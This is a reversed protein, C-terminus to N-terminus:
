VEEVAGNAVNVSFTVIIYNLPYAPLYAFRVEMVTPDVSRQRVALAQYDAIAGNGKSYELLGQVISKVSLATIATIPQGIIDASELGNQLLYVLADRSRAISIERTLTSSVDTTVGHRVVIRRQRDIEVICIGSSSYTNKTSGSLAPGVIGSFSRIVQRTLGQQVPQSSLRGGLAAALYQHGLAVTQNTSSNYYSMGGVSGYAFVIRSSEFAGGALLTPPDTTMDPDFGIIGTRFYGDRSANDAHIKLNLAATDADADMIGDTLPVVINAAYNTAIAAYATTLAALRAASIEEPTDDGVGPPATAVLLIEGAGNEFCIKAALSLPSLVPEYDAQGLTMPTSTLPLGYYNKVDEYNDLLRATYYNPDTYQYTVFVATGAPTGGGGARTIDVYYDQGGLDAGKVLTYDAPTVTAGTSVLTVVVTNLYDIGKKDLRTATNELTIQQTYTQYGIAPGVIAVLTPPLGTTAVPLSPSEEVYVGPQYYGHAFDITM